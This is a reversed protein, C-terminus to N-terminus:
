LRYVTGKGIQLEKAADPYRRVLENWARRYINWAVARGDWRYKGAVMKIRGMWEKTRGTVAVIDNPDGESAPAAEGTLKRKAAAYSAKLPLTATSALMLMVDILAAREGGVHEQWDFQPLVTDLWGVVAADIAEVSAFEGELLPTLTDVGGAASLAKRLWEGYRSGSLGGEELDAISLKLKHAKAYEIVAEWPTEYGASQVGASLEAIFESGEFSQVVAKQSEFIRALVKAGPKQAYSERIVFPFHPAPLRATDIRYRKVAATKRLGAVAPVVESYLTTPKDLEVSKDEIAAAEQLCATYDASGPQIVEAGKLSVYQLFRESTMGDLAAKVQKSHYSQGDGHDYVALVLTGNSQPLRLFTGTVFPKGDYIMGKGDAIQRAIPAPYAGAEEGQAEFARLAEDLMRQALGVELEWERHVPGGETVQLKYASYRKGNLKEALEDDKTFGGQRGKRGEADLFAAVSFLKRDNDNYGQTITCSEDLVKALGDMRAQVEALLGENKAVATASAKPNAIRDRLVGVQQRLNHLGVVKRVITQVADPNADLYERQKKITDLNILQRERNNSARQEAEKAAMNEQIRRMADADGVTDILMRLQEASMGGSIAVKNSGKADMVQGIWDAKKGVMVRKASDFTGDADYHYVTVKATHNGQRVGRGNRQQLSDPTWGITLHHIAQTGKQLNIGVEAKENAIVCRYKNDEGQANFGDQVELIQEPKNNTQGTIIAIAASPVGAHKSLIRKIKNHLPLIDCFVIQKVIPSRAGTGDIVGRPTAQENKYNELMAALKPPITVDLDLGQAQALAEFESQTDPDITDIQIRSGEVLYAKAHIKFTVTEDGTEQDKSVKRSVISGEETIPGPRSRDETIKKANFKEVVALALQANAPSFSYFTSRQDLEPDAILMTMKNILNFPHGILEMPEGFHAQVAEFAEESGRPDPKESIVDIAYRFAEKYLKLREKTADPLAVPSKADEADPVVIQAGVDKATKISFVSNVAGRLAAVNNLGTFVNTERTIGDMTVDTESDVQCMMNMFADAGKVGLCMDNVRQHGVALSLMSYIELPSNTIPSATLLLVGDAAPSAGRIFWAKAQMDIGRKAAPALSLYKGGKFESVESSNKYCNHVLVGEAFFNHNGDVTIDYVYGGPCLGGFEADGASQLVEVGEVGVFEFIGDQARGSGQGQVGQTIGWGSGGCDDANSQSHGAQLADPARKRSDGWNEGCIGDAVDVGAFADGATQKAAQWQGRACSDQAGQENGQFAEGRSEESYGSADAVLQSTTAGTQAEGDEGAFENGEQFKRLQRAEMGHHMLPQLLVGSGVRQGGELEPRSKARVDERVSQLAQINAAEKNAQSDRMGSQLVSQGREQGEAKANEVSSVGDHLQRLNNQEDHTKTHNVILNHGNCLFEAAVYGIGAVFFPHDHTSVISSGNKLRVRVLGAPVRRMVNTVMRMEILHTQHNFSRVFDGIKINEIPVGDIKTGAPFCHSEDSVLSDIGLDELYPAGGKKDSLIAVFGAAKGKNREDQKKDQVEAFSQDVQRMYVGFKEITEDRLRLREFAEMTMFIKSHRNERIRNLDEDYASSNVTYGGGKKDRLGVFLCDEISSYAHLAEKRWNSLVSGPVIFVTKKKVGISQVYQVSALATFTKGLGVDFGNGGGFERAQQRVFANQYGHLKLAPNMGPIELAETDEVRAFRLKSPDNATAQLRAQISPNGRAWGNFQENATRVMTRLEALAQADSIGLRAGGLTITGNKLYDGIRNMLKERDSLDKGKIQIDPRAKGDDYVVVASEHVFRRLFEAKEEVTVHPSFLNFELKSVDVREICSDALLKQRLLKAKLAESDAAEIQEDIKRLFDLYNGSYYDSAKTVSQGDASVCWDDDTMPDFDEGLVQKAQDLPVWQSKLKYRLGEFSGQATLAHENVVQAQVDGRWLASFGNKKHYHTTIAKLGLKIRGTIAGPAAKATAYHVQMADSLAAYEELYNCGEDAAREELVQQVSMGVIGATWYVSQQDATWAATQAMVERLWGPIDLALGTAILGDTFAKAQAYTVRAEFAAYPSAMNVMTLATAESVEGSREGIPVWRGDQMQLCQGAQYLTDGENYVIPTTETAGLLDWDVRSDPLKRLMAGIEGVSANSIVRDVDRFKSPDKAVFEGLVFRKGEGLFYTGELFQDFLVNAQTLVDPNQARLEQIKERTAKDYKRFFMVDTMTDAAATGFVSNPLRYAGVFEAMLSANLRLKREAGDKGSVCRPPTIFAALGGDRLKELSRLIFYNQLPEDQYRKDLLQNGGRDAVGGFPVNTVIADYAEDPTNAAVAEFPSITTKYGPGNNVLQNVRGSTENLEVADVVASEPATAGFVGTGACPDLVKGGAFGMEALADWIGQAVPAPTYYEYASGKKGDAGILAGGTGSYKALTAKQEASLNAPNLSGADIQALLAMAATNERKRQAPKRNEDFAYLDAMRQRPSQVQGLSAVQVRATLIKAMLPLRAMPSRETRLLEHLTSVQNGGFSSADDLTPNQSM